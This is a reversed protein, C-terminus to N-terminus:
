PTGGPLLNDLRSACELAAAVIDAWRRVTKNGWASRVEPPPADMMSLLEPESYRCLLTLALDRARESEEVELRALAADVGRAIQIEVRTGLLLLARVLASFTWREAGRRKREMRVLLIDLKEGLSEDPYFYCRRTCAEEVPVPDRPLLKRAGLGLRVLWSCESAWTREHREALAHIEEAVHQDLYLSRKQM